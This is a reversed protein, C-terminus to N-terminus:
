LQYPSLAVQEGNSARESESSLEPAVFSAPIKKAYNVFRTSEQTYAGLRHRVWEHTIGRDVYAEVTICVHETVSWDGHELVVATLFRRWSDATMADESRHSVRAIQEVSRLLQVGMAKEPIIVKAYPTIINM